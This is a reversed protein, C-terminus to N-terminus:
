ATVIVMSIPVVQGIPNHAMPPTRVLGGNLTVAQGSSSLKALRLAHGDLQVAAEKRTSDSSFVTTSGMDRMGLVLPPSVAM